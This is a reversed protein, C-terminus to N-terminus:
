DGAEAVLLPSGDADLLPCAGSATMLYQAGTLHDVVVVLGESGGSHSSFRTQGSELQSFEVSDPWGNLEPNVRVKFSCGSMSAVLALALAWVAFAVVVFALLGRPLKEDSM